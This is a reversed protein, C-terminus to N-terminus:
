FAVGNLVTNRLRHVAATQHAAPIKQHAELNNDNSQFELEQLIIVLFQM